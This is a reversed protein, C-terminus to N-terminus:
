FRVGLSAELTNDFYYGVGVSLGGVSDPISQLRLGPVVDVRNAVSMSNNTVTSTTTHSSSKKVTSSSSSSSSGSTKYGNPGYKATMSFIYDAKAIKSMMMLVFLSALLVILAKM